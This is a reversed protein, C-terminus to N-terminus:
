HYRPGMSKWRYEPFKAALNRSFEKVSDEWQTVATIKTRMADIKEIQGWGLKTM